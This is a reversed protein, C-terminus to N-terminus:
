GENPNAPPQPSQDKKRRLSPKRIKRWVFSLPLYFIIYLVLLVPVIYIIIWIVANALFTLTNILSQIANKAVGQPQWGGISLPQVAEDAMLEVSIASLAASQEFYQIRGKTVEISERIKVLQNYVKLVDETSVAEEMIRNLQAETNELNRLRSQLDTYEGTVDQSDSSERIPDQNSETKIQDLAENLREAPVRITISARPVKLGSDLTQQYLNKTVVFGGMEQALVAIRDMSIGPDEVALTIQANQIVLREANATSSDRSTEEYGINKMEATVGGGLEMPAAAPSALEYAQQAPAASACAGLLLSALLLLIGYQQFFNIMAKSM